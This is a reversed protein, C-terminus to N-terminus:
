SKAFGNCVKIVVCVTLPLLTLIRVLVDTNNGSTTGAEGSNSRDDAVNIRYPRQLM